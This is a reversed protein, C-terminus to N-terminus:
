STDVNIEILVVQEAKNKPRSDNRIFILIKRQKFTFM